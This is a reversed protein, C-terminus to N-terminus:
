PIVTPTGKPYFTMLIEAGREFPLSSDRKPSAVFEVMGGSELYLCVVERGRDDEGTEIVTITAGVLALEAEEWAQESM